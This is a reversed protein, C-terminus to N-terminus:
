FSPKTIPSQWISKIDDGCYKWMTLTKPLVTCCIRGFPKLALLHDLCPVRAKVEGFSREESADWSRLDVDFTARVHGHAGVAWGGIIVFRLVPIENGLKIFDPLEM